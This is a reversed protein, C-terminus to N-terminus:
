RPLSEEVERPRSVARQVDDLFAALDTGYKEYVRDAADSIEQEGPSATARAGEDQEQMTPLPGKFMKTMSTTTRATCPHEISALRPRNCSFVRSYAENSSAARAKM